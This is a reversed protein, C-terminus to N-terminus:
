PLGKQAIFRQDVSIALTLEIATELNSRGFKEPTKAGWKGFTVPTAM